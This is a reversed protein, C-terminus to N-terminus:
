KLLEKENVFFPVGKLGATFYKKRLNEINNVEEESVSADVDSSFYKRIIKIQEQVNSTASAQKYILVSKELSSRDHVPTFILKLNYNTLKEEIKDIEKKCFPCEPDTFAILTPKDKDTGITLINKPDEAKYLNSLEKILNARDLKEKISGGNNISIVDPFILDGQTFVSLNQVRTGDAISLSVYDMDNIGEISVRSTVKIDITPVPIQAKFYNIIQTDSAAFLTSSVLATALVLHKKM